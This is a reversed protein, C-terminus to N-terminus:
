ISGMKKNKFLFRKNEHLIRLDFGNKLNIKIHM